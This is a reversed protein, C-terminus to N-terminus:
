RVEAIASLRAMKRQLDKSNRRDFDGWLLDNLHANSNEEERGRVKNQNVFDVNRQLCVEQIIESYAKEYSSASCFGNKKFRPDLLTTARVLIPQNEENEFRTNINSILTAMVTKVIESNLSQNVRQCASLLRNVLIIIKSVTVSKEACIEKTVLDFPKLVNCVTSRAINAM